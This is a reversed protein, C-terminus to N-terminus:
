ARMARMSNLVALILVGVDGFVAEWMGAIGLAGLILFLGKIGIAFVINQTAIARTAKAINMAEPIKSPEDTMLIVDAAEIAADSGLAGMAIGVDARALVPADNIGDGVFALKKGPKKAADLEELREVKEAPLLQAFCKDLCLKKAIAMAIAKSDGTLMVTQSVGKKKLEAIAKQSDEKVEDAIVLCGMYTGDVAVYVKTGTEENETFPVAAEQLLRANGALIEKGQWTACIGRGSKECYAALESRDPTSGYAEMISTAIPHRSGCEALAAYHLLTDKSVGAATAINTVEFTGKTLTGTKDFVITDVQALAELYNSGKVLIGKRSAAGIGSFFTLPISVVLACPCSIVLFVFSRMIWDTWVGGFFLPPVAALFVAGIVVAPTYYRCFRTIFREMPAKRAAANEVLDIVKSATSEGFSHTTEIELMGDTSICGSLAEDGAEVRRPVAEGTLAKTDVLATGALATGDIPIREGPQVVITSGIAVSGSPVTVIDNGQRVHATDPRIDLLSKISHRSNDVAKDQFLEGVQYFLMVAVAEPYEGIVFAGITSLSMLFHEDFVRGHRINKLAQLVVDYGLIVYAAVLVALYLTDSLGFFAHGVLVAAYLIAGAILRQKRMPGEEEEEDDDQAASHSTDIIEIDPEHTHVIKEIQPLVAAEADADVSITLTQRMLNVASATIGSLSGVEEEIKASCNPCDLGKLLFTKEM